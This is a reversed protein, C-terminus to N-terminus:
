RVIAEMEDMLAKARAIGLLILLSRFTEESSSDAIKTKPAANRTKGKSRVGYVYGPAIKLGAAKAKEIVENASLSAPLSRVFAAKSPKKPMTRVTSSEIDISYRTQLVPLVFCLSFCCEGAYERDMWVGAWTVFRDLPKYGRHKM